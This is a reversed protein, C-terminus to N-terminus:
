IKPMEVDLLLVESGAPQPSRPNYFVASMEIFDAHTERPAAIIINDAFLETQSDIFGNAENIDDFVLVDRKQITIKVQNKAPQITM